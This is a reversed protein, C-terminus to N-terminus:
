IKVVSSVGYEAYGSSEQIHVVGCSRCTIQEMTDLYVLAGNGHQVFNNTFLIDSVTHQCAVRVLLNKIRKLM